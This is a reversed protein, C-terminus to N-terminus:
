AVFARRIVRRNFVSVGDRAVLGPAGSHKAALQTLLM